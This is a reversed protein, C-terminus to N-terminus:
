RGLDAVAAPANITSNTSMSKNPVQKINVQCVQIGMAELFNIM